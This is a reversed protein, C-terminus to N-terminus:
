LKKPFIRLQLVSGRSNFFRVRNILFDIPSRLVAYIATQQGKQNTFTGYLPEASSLEITGEEGNLQAPQRLAVQTSLIFNLTPYDLWNRQLPAHLILPHASTPDAFTKNGINFHAVRHGVLPIDLFIGTLCGPSAYRKLLIDPGAVDEPMDFLQWDPQPLLVVKQSVGIKKAIWSLFRGPKWEEGNPLQYHMLFNHGAIDYNLERLVFVKKHDSDRYGSIAVWRDLATINVGVMNLPGTHMYHFLPFLWPDRNRIMIPHANVLEFLSITRCDPNEYTTYSIAWPNPRCPDRALTLTNPYFKNYISGVVPLRFIQTRQPTGQANLEFSYLKGQADQSYVIPGDKLTRVMKPLSASPLHLTEGTLCTVDQASAHHLSFFTSLLLFTLIKIHRSNM